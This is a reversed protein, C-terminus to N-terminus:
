IMKTMRTENRKGTYHHLKIKFILKIFMIHTIIVNKKKLQELIHIVRMDRIYVLTNTVYFIYMKTMKVSLQYIFRNKPNLLIQFHNQYAIFKYKVLPRYSSSM